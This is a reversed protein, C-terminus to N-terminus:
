QTIIPRPSAGTTLCSNSPEAYTLNHESAFDEFAAEWVEVVLTDHIEQLTSLSNSDIGAFLYYTTPYFEVLAGAAIGEMKPVYVADPILAGIFCKYGDPSRYVCEGDATLSKRGQTRAHQVVKDFIEQLTM